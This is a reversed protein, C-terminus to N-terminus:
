TISFEASSHVELLTARNISYESPKKGKHAKQSPSCNSKLSVVPSSGRIYACDAGGASRVMHINCDGVTAFVIVHDGTPFVIIQCSFGDLDFYGSNFRHGKNCDKFRRVPVYFRAVSSSDSIKDSRMFESCNEKGTLTSRSSPLFAPIPGDSSPSGSGTLFFYGESSM